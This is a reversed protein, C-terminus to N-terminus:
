YYVKSVSQLELRQLSLYSQYWSAVSCDLLLPSVIWKACALRDKNHERGSSRNISAGVRRWLWWWWHGRRRPPPFRLHGDSATPQRGSYDGSPGWNFQHSKEAGRRALFWGFRVSRSSTFQVWNAQEFSMLESAEAERTAVM